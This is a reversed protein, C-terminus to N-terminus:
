IVAYGWVQTQPSMTRYYPCTVLRKLRRNVYAVIVCGSMRPSSLRANDFASSASFHEGHVRICRQHPSLPYTASVWRAGFHFQPNYNRNEGIYVKAVFLLLTCGLTKDCVHECAERSQLVSQMFTGASFYKDL